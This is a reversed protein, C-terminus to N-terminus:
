FKGCKIIDDFRELINSLRNFCEHHTLLKKEKFLYGLGKYPDDEYYASIVCRVKAKYLQQKKVWQLAGTCELYARVCEEANPWESYLAPLCLKELDGCDKDDPLPVILVPKSDIKGVRESGTPVYGYEQLKREVNSLTQLNDNDTVIAIGVLRKFGRIAPFGQIAPGFGAVGGAGVCEWSTKIQFAGLQREKILADLFHKDHEGECLIFRETEFEWDHPM